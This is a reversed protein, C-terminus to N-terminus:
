SSCNDIEESVKADGHAKTFRGERTGKAINWVCVTGAEDASVVVDFTANYLASKVSEMHGTRDQAVLKHSWVYPKAMSTVVRRSFYQLSATLLATNGLLSLSSIIEMMKAKLKGTFLTM